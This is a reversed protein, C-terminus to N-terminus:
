PASQPKGKRHAFFSWSLLGFTGLLMFALVGEVFRGMVLKDLSFWEAAAGMCPCQWTPIHLWSLGVRYAVFVLCLSALPLLRRFVDRQFFSICTALEMASSILLVERTTLLIFVPDRQNLVPASGFASVVKLTATALLIIITLRLFAWEVFCFADGSHDIRKPPRHPEVDKRDNGDSPWGAASVKDQRWNYRANMGFNWITVMGIALLNSCYLNWGLWTHFVHLMLVAFGIGAGCIANFVVLRRLRSRFAQGPTSDKFTWMENWAFNNVLAVEAACIKSLEVNLGFSRPDALVYLVTMDVVTGSGGVLCFKLFQPFRARFCFGAQTLANTPQPSTDQFVTESSDGGVPNTQEQAQITRRAKRGQFTTERAEELTRM